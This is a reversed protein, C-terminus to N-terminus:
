KYGIVDIHRDCTNFKDKRLQKYEQYYKYMFQNKSFEIPYYFKIKVLFHFPKESQRLFIYLHIDKLKVWNKSTLTCRDKAKKEIYIRFRNWDQKYLRLEM